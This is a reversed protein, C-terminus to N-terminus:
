DDNQIIDFINIRFSEIKLSHRLKFAELISHYLNIFSFFINVIM